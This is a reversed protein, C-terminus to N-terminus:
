YKFWIDGESLQGSPPDDTSCTIISFPRRTNNSAESNDLEFDPLQRPPAAQFDRFSYDSQIYSIDNNPFFVNCLKALYFILIYLGSLAYAVNQYTAENFNKGRNHKIDGYADWWLLGGTDWGEFPKITNGWRPITVEASVIKPYTTLIVKKYNGINGEEKGGIKFCLQKMVSEVETCSLVLLKAFQFSFVNEQGKPEIFSSTNDLDKELSLFYNWIENITNTIEEKTALNIIDAM